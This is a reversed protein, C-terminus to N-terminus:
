GSGSEGALGLIEGSGLGLRELDVVTRPGFAIRLDHISLKADTM